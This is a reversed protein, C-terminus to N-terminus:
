PRQPAPAPAFAERVARLVRERTGEMVPVLGGLELRALEVRGQSRVTTFGFDSLFDRPFITKHVLLRDFATEGEAYRYAFAELAKAGRERAEGIATLFLSQMVWPKSADTLYACTILVADDSAPGAPLTAARPFLESPAFQMSGLVRGDDEDYYVSGWAGWESEVGNIWRRKATRRGPRTQWWVCEHCLTPVDPLTAGTLGVIRTSM